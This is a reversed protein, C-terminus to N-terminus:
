PLMNLLDRFAPIHQSFHFSNKNKDLYGFRVEKSNVVAIFPAKLYWNYGILQRITKETINVAKCEILLLPWGQHYCVIDARRKPVKTDSSSLHPMQQLSVEVSIGGKLYGLDQILYQIIGQRVYEEPTARVLIKRVACFLNEAENM